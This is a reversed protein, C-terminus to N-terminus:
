PPMEILVIRNKSDDPISHALGAPAITGGSTKTLELHTRLRSRDRDKQEAVVVSDPLIGNTDCFEAQTSMVVFLRVPAGCARDRSANGLLLM